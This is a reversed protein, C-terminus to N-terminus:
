TAKQRRLLKRYAYGSKGRLVRSLRHFKSRNLTKLMLSQELHFGQNKLPVHRQCPKRRLFKFIKCLIMNESLLLRKWVVKQKDDSDSGDEGSRLEVFGTTLSYSVGRFPRFQWFVEVALPLQHWEWLGAPNNFKPGVLGVLLLRVWDHILFFNRCLGLETQDPLQRLTALDKRFEWPATFNQLKRRLDYSNKSKELYQQLSIHHEKLAQIMLRIMGDVMGRYFFNKIAHAYMRMTPKCGYPPAVMVEWLNTVSKIPLQGIRADQNKTNNPRPVTLVFAWELMEQWVKQTILISFRRSIHDVVRLCASLENNSGFVHAVTFLLDPTPYLPSGQPVDVPKSFEDGENMITTVDVGWVKQLILKVSELDGERAFATMLLSYTKADAVTGREAMNAFESSVRAKVGIRYGCLSKWVRSAHNEQQRKAKTYNLVRLKMRESPDLANSWCIAEFFNNYCDVDPELRSSLMEAWIGSALRENRFACAINLLMKAKQFALNQGPQARSQLIRGMVLTYDEMLSSLLTRLNGYTVFRHPFLDRYISTYSELFDQPDLCRIIESVTTQPISGLLRSDVSVEALFCFLGYSDRQRLLEAIRIKVHVVSTWNGRSSKFRFKSKLSTEEVVSTEAQGHNESPGSLESDRFQQKTHTNTNNPAFTYNQRTGLQKLPNGIDASLNCPEQYSTLRHQLGNGPVYDKIASTPTLKSQSSKTSSLAFSISPRNVLLSNWRCKLITSVTNTRHQSEVIGLVTSMCHM